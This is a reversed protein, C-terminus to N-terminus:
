REHRFAPLQEGCNCCPKTGSLVTMVTGGMIRHSFLQQREPVSVRSFFVLSYVGLSYEVIFLIYTNRRRARTVADDASM